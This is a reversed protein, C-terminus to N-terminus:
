DKAYFSQVIDQVLRAATAVPVSLQAPDPPQEGDPRPAVRLQEPDGIVNVPLNRVATVRADSLERVRAHAWDPIWPTRPGVTPADLEKLKNVVLRQFEERPWESRRLPPRLSRVLEVEAWSLSRNSRRPNVRLLGTPLGLMAEFTRPLLSHDKEDAIILTFRDPPVFDLWRKVLAEVDHGMWVNWRAYRGNDEEDLVIRLWADFSKTVGAKVQEQWQSPLYKDLRRAVAVVHPSEGGLDTVIRDIQPSRARAFGEDSVCVRADGAERVAQVLRNWRTLDSGVPNGYPLGLDASAGRRRGPYYAGHEAMRDRSEGMAAQIATTGTKQPGVHILRAAEPLLLSSM